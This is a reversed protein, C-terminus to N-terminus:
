KKKIPNLWVKGFREQLKKEGEDLLEQNPTAQIRAKELFQDLDADSCAECKDSHERLAARNKEPLKARDDANLMLYQKYEECTIESLEMILAGQAPLYPTKKNEDIM